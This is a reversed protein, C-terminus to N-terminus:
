EDHLIFRSFDAADLYSYGVAAAAAVLAAAAASEGHVVDTWKGGPRGRTLGAAHLLHVDDVFLLVLVVAVVGQGNGLVATLLLPPLRRHRHGRLDDLGLLLLLLLLTHATAELGLPARENQSRPRQLM